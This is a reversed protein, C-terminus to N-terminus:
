GAQPTRVSEPSFVIIALGPSRGPLLAIVSAAAALSALWLMRRSDIHMSDDSV